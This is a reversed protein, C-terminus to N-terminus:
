GWRDVGGEEAEEEEVVAPVRTTYYEMSESRQLPSAVKPNGKISSIRKIHTPVAEPASNSRPPSTPGSPSSSGSSLPSTPSQSLLSPYFGNKPSGFPPGMSANSLGRQYQYLPLPPTRNDYEGRAPVRVWGGSLLSSKRRPSQSDLTTSSSGWSTARPSMMFMDPDSNARGYTARPMSLTRTSSQSSRNSCRGPSESGLETDYIDRKTSQLRGAKKRGRIERGCFTTADSSKESIYGVLIFGLFVPWLLAPWFRVIPELFVCLTETRFFSPVWPVGNVEYFDRTFIWIITFLSAVIYFSCGLAIFMVSFNISGDQDQVPVNATPLTTANSPPIPEAPSAWSTFAM